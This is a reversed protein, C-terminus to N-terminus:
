TSRGGRRRRWTCRMSPPTSANAAETSSIVVAMPSSAVAPLRVEPGPLVAAPSSVASLKKADGRTDKNALEM